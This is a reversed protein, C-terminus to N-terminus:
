ATPAMRELEGLHTSSMNQISASPRSLGRCCLKPYFVPQVCKPPLTRYLVGTFESRILRRHHGQKAARFNRYIQRSSVSPPFNYELAAMLMEYSRQAAPTFNTATDMAVGKLAGWVFSLRFREDDALHDTLHEFTKRWQDFEKKDIKLDGFFHPIRSHLGANADGGRNDRPSPVQQEGKVTQRQIITWYREAQQRSYVLQRRLDVVEPSDAIIAKPSELHSTLVKEDTDALHDMRPPASPPGYSPTPLHSMRPSAYDHMAVTPISASNSVPTAPARDPMTPDPSRPRTPRTSTAISAHRPRDQQYGARTDCHALNPAIVIPTPPPSGTSPQADYIATRDITPCRLHSVPGHDQQYGARTDFSCSKASDAAPPAVASSTAPSNPSTRRMTPTVDGDNIMRTFDAIYAALRETGILKHALIHRVADSFANYDRDTLCGDIYTAVKVKEYLEIVLDRITEDEESM